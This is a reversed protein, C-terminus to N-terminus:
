HHALMDVNDCYIPSVRYWWQKRTQCSRTATRKYFSADGNWFIRPLNKVVFVRWDTQGQSSSMTAWSILEARSSRDGVLWDENTYQGGRYVTFVRGSDVNTCRFGSARATSRTNPTGTPNKQSVTSVPSSHKGSGTGLSPSPSTSPLSWVVIDRIELPSNQSPLTVIAIRLRARCDLRLIAPSRNSYGVGSCIPVNGSFNGCHRRPEFDAASVTATIPGTSATASRPAPALPTQSSTTPGDSGM